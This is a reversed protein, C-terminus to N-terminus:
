SMKKGVMAYFSETTIKCRLNFVRNVINCYAQLPIWNDNLCSVSSETKLSLPKSTFAVLKWVIRPLISIRIKLYMSSHPLCFFEWGAAHSGYAWALVATRTRLSSSLPRNIQAKNYIFKDFSDSLSRGQLFLQVIVQYVIYVMMESVTWVKSFSGIDPLIYLLHWM